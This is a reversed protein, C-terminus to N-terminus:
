TSTDPLVPQRTTARGPRGLADARGVLAMELDRSRQADEMTVDLRAGLGMTVNRGAETSRLLWGRSAGRVQIFLNPGVRHPDEQLQAIEAETM